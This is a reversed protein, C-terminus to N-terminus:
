TSSRIVLTPQILSSEAAEGNMLLNLSAVAQRGVRHFDQRVTTLPPHFSDAGPIDDFGVVRVDDPVRLGQRWLSGLSGLALQDNAAFIGDVEAGHSDVLPAAAAADWSDAPLMLPALGAEDCAARYGEVRLRADMWDWPGCIHAVRRCGREILHRVAAVAGAHHDVAVGVATEPLRHVRGVLVTPMRQAIEDVWPSPEARGGLIIVGDAGMPVLARVDPETSNTPLVSTSTHLGLGALEECIAVFAAAHGHFLPVANIVHVAGTRNASLSRAALNPQYNLKRIAEQVRERTDTAVLDLGRVVRSATVVSVGAEAAIDRLNVRRGRDNM